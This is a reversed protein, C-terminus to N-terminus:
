EIHTGCVLCSIPVTWTKLGHVLGRRDTVEVLPPSSYVAEAKIVKAGTVSEGDSEPNVQHGQLRVLRGSFHAQWPRVAKAENRKAIQSRDAISPPKPAPPIVERLTDTTPIPTGDRSLQAAPTRLRSLAKSLVNDIICAEHMWENCNPNPCGILIVDPNEPIHCICRPLASDLAQRWYLSMHTEMESEQWHTVDARASVTMVNVIDMHNSAILEYRGHYEQRGSVRQSKADIKILQCDMLDDPWYMRALRLYVNRDDRARIELIRGVWGYSSPTKVTDPTPVTAPAAPKSNDGDCDDSNSQAVAMDQNAVWIFMNARFETDNMKFHHYRTMAYWEDAPEVIFKSDLSAHTKLPGNKRFSSAQYRGHGQTSPNSPGKTKIRFDTVRGQCAALAASDLIDPLLKVRFPCDTAPLTSFYSDQSLRSSPSPDCPPNFTATYQSSRM